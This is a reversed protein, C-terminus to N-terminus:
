TRLIRIQMKITNVTEVTDSDGFTHLVVDEECDCINGREPTDNATILEEIQHGGSRLITNVGRTSHASYKHHKASDLIEVLLDLVFLSLVVPFLDRQDGKRSYIDSKRLSSEVQHTAQATKELHHKIYIRILKPERVVNSIGCEFIPLQCMCLRETVTAYDVTHEIGSPERLELTINM